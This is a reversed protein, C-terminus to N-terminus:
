MEFFTCKGDALIGGLCNQEQVPFQLSLEGSYPNVYFSDQDEVPPLEKDDFDKKPWSYEEWLPHISAEKETNAQDKEKGIMWHLAQKQYHRLEMVFTSAPEAAPTNFDFSQAKKYLTDLQDQELEKGDEAEESPPSSGGTDEGSSKSGAEVDGNKDYHEAVETAQLLGQRKHKEATENTKTPHLNIESFLKVLGAQRRRLDQEETTEKVEFLGTTRNNDAPRFATSAFSTKLLSVRLQVFMTDNVRVTRPAYVCTGEFDCIKQDLLASVWLATEQPLRAFEEGRSNTLRVVIDSRRNVPARQIRASSPRGKTSKSSPPQIKHRGISVKEGHHVLDAGSRTAWAEVGFAGIYRKTPTLEMRPQAQRHIPCSEPQTSSSFSDRENRVPEVVAKEATEDPTPVEARWSGDFYM